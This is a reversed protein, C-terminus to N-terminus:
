AQFLLSLHEDDGRWAVREHLGRPNRLGIVAANTYHRASTVSHQQVLQFVGNVDRFRGKLFDLEQTPSTIPVIEAAAM